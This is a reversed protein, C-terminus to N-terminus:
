WWATQLSWFVAPVFLDIIKVRPFYLLPQNAPLAILVQRSPYVFIVFPLVSIGFFIAPQTGFPSARGLVFVFIIMVVALHAFPMMFIFAYGSFYKGARVRIDRLLLANIVNLWVRITRATEATMLPEQLWEDQSTPPEFAARRSFIALSFLPARM